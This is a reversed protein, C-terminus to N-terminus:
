NLKVVAIEVIRVAETSMSGKCARSEVGYQRWGKRGGTATRLRPIAM